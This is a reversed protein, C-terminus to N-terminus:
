TLEFIGGINRNYIMLRNVLDEETNKEPTILRQQISLDTPWEFTTHYIDIHVIYLYLGCQFSIVKERDYFVELKLILEKEQQGRLLCLM